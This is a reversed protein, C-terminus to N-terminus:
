GNMYVRRQGKDTEASLRRLVYQPHSLPHTIINPVRRIKATLLCPAQQLMRDLGSPVNCKYTSRIRVSYQVNQSVM